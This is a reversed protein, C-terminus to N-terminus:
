KPPNSRNQTCSAFRGTTTGFINFDSRNEMMNLAKSIIEAAEKEFCECMLKEHKNVPGSEETETDVVSFDFCCHGSVSGPIVKYRAM